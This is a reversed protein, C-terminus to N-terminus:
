EGEPAQTHGNKFPERKLNKNKDFTYMFILPIECSGNGFLFFSFSFLIGQGFVERKVTKASKGGKNVERDTFM